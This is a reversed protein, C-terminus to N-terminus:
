LSAAHVTSIVFSLVTTATTSCLIHILSLGLVDGADIQVISLVPRAEDQVGAQCLVLRVLGDGFPEGGIYVAGAVRKGGACGAFGRM